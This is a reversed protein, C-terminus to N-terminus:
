VMRVSKGNELEVMQEPLAEWPISKHEALGTIMLGEDLLSQVIEGLGHNWEQTKKSQFDADKDKLKVYTGADEFEMPKEREFYPYRVQLHTKIQEDLSWLM